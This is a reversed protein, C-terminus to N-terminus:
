PARHQTSLQRQLLSLGCTPIRIGPQPYEESREVSAVYGQWTLVPVLAWSTRRLAQRWRRQLVSDLVWVGFAVIGVTRLAYSIVAWLFALGQHTGSERRRASMLFLTTAIAFGVEPYLADSLFWSNM